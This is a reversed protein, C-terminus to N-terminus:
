MKLTLVNEKVFEHFVTAAVENAKEEINEINAFRDFYENYINNKPEVVSSSFSNILRELAVQRALRYHKHNRYGLISNSEECAANQIQSLFVASNGSITISRKISNILHLKNREYYENNPVEFNFIGITGNGQVAYIKYLSNESTISDMVDECKEFLDMYEFSIGDFISQASYVFDQYYKPYIFQAPMLSIIKAFLSYNSELKESNRASLINRDVLDALIKKREIWLEDIKFKEGLPCDQMYKDYFGVTGTVNVGSRSAKPLNLSYYVKTDYQNYFNPNALLSVNILAISKEFSEASNNVSILVDKMNDGLM